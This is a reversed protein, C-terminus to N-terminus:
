ASLKPNPREERLGEQVIKGLAEHFVEEGRRAYIWALWGGILVFVVFALWARWVRNLAGIMAPKM